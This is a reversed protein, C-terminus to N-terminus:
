SQKDVLFWSGTKESSEAEPWPRRKSNRASGGVVVICRSFPRVVPLRGVKM